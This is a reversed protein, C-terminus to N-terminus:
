KQKINNNSKQSRRPFIVAWGMGFFAVPLLLRYIRTFATCLRTQAERHVRRVVRTVQWQIRNVQAELQATVQPTIAQVLAQRQQLSFHGRRTKQALVQAIARHKMASTVTVQPVKFQTNKEKGAGLRKVHTKLKNRFQQRLRPSLTCQNIQSDGYRQVQTKATALNANFLSMCVAVALVMGVQRLVNIVSQSVTLRSGTFDAAAWVMAPGAIVGFGLGVLVSGVLLNHYGSLEMHGLFWYALGISGFGGVVIIRPNIHKMGLSAVVTTTFVVGSYPLIHLAAQLETLGHLRVLFTPVLIVFGALFFCAGVMAGAAANFNRSRFLGLDVMPHAVRCEVGIFACFTIGATFLLGLIVPSCWHWDPGKVLGLTLSLLMLMSLAAGPVDIARLTLRSRTALVMWVPILLLIVALLPVNVFFVWRWGWQETIWGGVVPGVATALAQCGGLVAVVQNRRDPSVLQMGIITGLPLIVAAGLGQVVRSVYLWALTPACGSALSGCLFLVIGGFLARNEGWLEAIRAALLATTAFVIMYLNVAWSVQGLSANFAGQLRPVVITMITTDLMCLFNVVCLIVLAGGRNKIKM